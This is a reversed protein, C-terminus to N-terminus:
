KKLITANHEGLQPAASRVVPPTGSMRVANRILSVEGKGAPHPVRAVMDLARVQPDSFVGELDHIPGSPVDAKVLLDLWHERDRTAFIRSFEEHLIDYNAIRKKREAFRPDEAFDLRGVVGLLAMWFKKPSSLHIVFGKGDGAVFAFVQAIRTRTARGPTSGDEFYRAANEALFSLTSELLSTSVRQGLGTLHRSIIAALIGMCASIGALHDSLSIGMPQPKNM